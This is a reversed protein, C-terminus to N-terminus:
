FLTVHSNQSDWSQILLLCFQCTTEIHRFTNGRTILQLSNNASKIDINVCLADIYTSFSSACSILYNKSMLHFIYFTFIGFLLFLEHKLSVYIHEPIERNVGNLVTESCHELHKLVIFPVAQKFTRKCVVILRASKTDQQM